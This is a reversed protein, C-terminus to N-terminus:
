EEGGRDRHIYIHREYSKQEGGATDTWLIRPTIKKLNAQWDEIILVAQANPLDGKKMAQNVRDTYESFVEELKPCGFDLKPCLNTPKTVNVEYIGSQMQDFPIERLLGTGEEPALDQIIRTAAATKIGYRPTGMYSLTVLTLAAMIGVSVAWPRKVLSRYPNRDIYPIAVLVIVIITPIIIGMITKDGLKLMGQLWWFYWPAETDLPTQQPNAVHELPASYFFTTMLVLILIGLATLFLEHTLLDPILDIRQKGDREVEKPLDGEEYRAPLSIGHERSVKYYHVSIILIAALPLLVVHLLYFRLLGGAGIDPAGRLILNVQSGFM